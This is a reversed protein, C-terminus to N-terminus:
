RATTPVGTSTTFPNEAFAMYIYTDGSTNYNATDSRFKFGNSLFDVADNTSDTEADLLNAFLSKKQVNFPTRKNDQIAWSGTGASKKFIAFAPKFGTYVFTGNTSANGIYSGFKSFSKKEAFCYMIYNRSSGNVAADTSLYMLSSTPATDQFHNATQVAQTVNLYMNKDWGINDGSVVWSVANDRDKVIVFAPAVGLGHGVTANAGTGTYSVISFGSTTNASVTSTISGDTNSVATGGAKWNWSAYTKGSGNVGDDTNVTFGDSDFSTLLATSTAEVNSTSSQIIKDSGRIVDFWNHNNAQRCKFWILDPQFGVGTLTRPNSGNGSYTITNFYDSPKNISTYAM